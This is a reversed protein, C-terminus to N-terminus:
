LDIINNRIGYRIIDVTTKLNLRQMIHNKHSEVTRVSLFLKDAIEKNSMNNGWLRLIEVQRASLEAAGGAAPRSDAHTGGGMVGDVYKGVLMDTITKSFYEFGGRVTMIGQRLEQPDADTAMIGKAGNRIAMTVANPTPETMMVISRAREYSRALSRVYELPADEGRYVCVVVINIGDTKVTGLDMVEGRGVEQAEFEEDSTAILRTLASCLLPHSDYVGIKIM